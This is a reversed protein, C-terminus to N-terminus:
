KQNPKQLSEQARKHTQLTVQLQWFRLYLWMLSGNKGKDRSLIDACHRDNRFIDKLDSEINLETALPEKAAQILLNREMELRWKRPLLVSCLASQREVLKTEFESLVAMADVQWESERELVDNLLAGADGHQAAQRKEEELAERERQLQKREDLLQQSQSLVAQRYGQVRQREKELELEVHVAARRSETLAERYKMELDSSVAKLDRDYGAKVEGIERRSEKTWIWRFAALGLVPVLLAYNWKNSDGDGRRDPRFNWGPDNLNNMSLLLGFVKTVGGCSRSVQTFTVNVHCLKLPRLIGM